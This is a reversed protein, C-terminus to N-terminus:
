GSRLRLASKGCNTTRAGEVPEPCAGAYEYATGDPMQLKRFAQKIAPNQYPTQMAEEGEEHAHNLFHLWEFLANGWDQGHYLREFKPLEVLHLLLHDTLRVTPHRADRLEFAWQWAHQSPFQEYDIFHIGIVPKLSQYGKGSDLQGTYMKSLYYLAREPYGSYKRMQMEIDYQRDRKMM